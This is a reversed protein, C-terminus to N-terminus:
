RNLPGTSLHLHPVSLRAIYNRTVIRSLCPLAVCGMKKSFWADCPFNTVESEDDKPDLTVAELHWDSGMGSPELEVVM